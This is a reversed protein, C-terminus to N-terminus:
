APVEHAWHVCMREGPTRQESRTTPADVEALLRRIQEVSLRTAAAIAHDSWGLAALRRIAALQEAHSLVLFHYLERPIDGPRAIPADIM